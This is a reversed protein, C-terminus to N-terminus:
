NPRPPPQQRRFGALRGAFLEDDARAQEHEILGLVAEIQEDSLEDLNPHRERFGYIQEHRDHSM